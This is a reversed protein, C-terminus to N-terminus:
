RRSRFLIKVPVNELGIGERLRGALYRRYSDKIGETFNTFVVFAPPSVGMQTIYYFKIEKGRYMPPKYSLVADQLAKNLKATPIKTRSRAVVEDVSDLIRRIRQGTLASVFVVPAFSIFPMRERVAEEILGLTRTEKEVIDWKNVAIICCKKREEILSAIKEDQTKLGATGDVVLIAVDCRDITKIAEMVCYSEVKLSVKSKRRIGATDIFTYKRGDLTFPTDVADRTTGAVESVLARKRGIIRNLISSKGVNPRGVIAVRIREEEAEEAEEPALREVIADVLENVGRGHEASVPLLVVAGLSYFDALGPEQRSSDVKNVVYLVPKSVRRLMGALETDQPTLGDRGDMVFVIIDADEIALNAQTRIQEQISDRDGPEIGGTDVITFSRGLEEVDAYNLDRTVGPEELVIAKRKGLLRNFLTSKGVNPRGVIAVIPKM